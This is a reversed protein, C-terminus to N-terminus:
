SSTKLVLSLITRNFKMLYEFSITIKEEKTTKINPDFLEKKKFWYLNLENSLHIIYKV